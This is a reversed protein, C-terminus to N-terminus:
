VIVGVAFPHGPRGILTTSVTFGVGLTVAVGTECFMHEVPVVDIASALAVTLVVKLQVIETNGAPLMVPADFPDPLIIEWVRTL